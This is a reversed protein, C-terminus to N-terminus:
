IPTNIFTNIIYEFSLFYCVSVAAGGIRPLEMLLFRTHNFLSISVFIQEATLNEGGNMLMYSVFCGMSIQVFNFLKGSCFKVFFLCYVSIRCYNHGHWCHFHFNEENNTTRRKASELDYNRISRGLRVNKYGSFDMNLLPQM